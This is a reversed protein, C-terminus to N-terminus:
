DVSDLGRFRRFSDVKELGAIHHGVADLDRNRTAIEVIMEVDEYPLDEVEDPTVAPEVVTKSVLFKMFEFQEKILEPTIAKNGGSFGIAAELLDNPIQGSQIYKPLNPLEIVVQTGSSLTVEHKRAAKWSTITTKKSTQAM